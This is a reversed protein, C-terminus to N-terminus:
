YRNASLHDSACGFFYSPKFEQIRSQVDRSLQMDDAKLFHDGRFQIRSNKHPNSVNLLDIM